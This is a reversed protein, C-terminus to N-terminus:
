CECPHEYMAPISSNSAVSSLMSLAEMSWMECYYDINDNGPKNCHNSPNGPTIDLRSRLCGQAPSLGVLAVQRFQWATNAANIFTSNGHSLKALHASLRIAILHTTM